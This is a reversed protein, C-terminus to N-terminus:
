RGLTRSASVGSLRIMATAWWRCLWPSRVTNTELSMEARILDSESPMGLLTVNKPTDTEDRVEMSINHKPQGGTSSGRNHIGTRVALDPANTLASRGRKPEFVEMFAYIAPPNDPFGATFQHIVIIPLDSTVNVLNSSLTLYTEGHVPGPFFGTQFARARVQTLGRRLTPTM